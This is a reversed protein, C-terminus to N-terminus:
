TDKLMILDQIKQWSLLKGHELEWDQEGGYVVYSNAIPIGAINQFWALHKFFDTHFTRSSKIEIPM